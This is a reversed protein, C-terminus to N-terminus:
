NVYQSLCEQRIWATFGPKPFMQGVDELSAINVLPSIQPQVQLQGYIGIPPEATHPKPSRM